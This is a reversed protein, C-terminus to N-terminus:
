RAAPTACRPPEPRRRRRPRARDDPLLLRQHRQRRAARHRADTLHTAHVASTRPGLVGHDHLLQTPTAGYAALCDDNEARQESLHVHLPRGEAAAVVQALADDPVARVSHIAAGVGRRARRRAGARAGADAWADVDGDSFRVQVGEVPPASGAASTAPTSCRSGSGPRAPRAAAPRAGMANADDYPTGDPQHHLYHFEGVATIAPRRWRATPRRALAFYSDPDLRGAVAYMQERWTWFTGRERQTRGRLARHFAHSHCNALGPHHPRPGQCIGRGAPFRASTPRQLARCRLGREEHCHSPRSGGTRSRSWCTTASPATSGRASSSTRRRATVSAALRELTDALASVGVLCDATEAHEAPAHSVGTPNRVFLMATPIGPPPWSARRRPRGPDPHGALRRGRPGRRDPPRPRRRLVALRDGVRGDRGGRHRRARGARDGAPDRHGGAGGADRRLRVARRAVRDGAVARRQHRQARGRRARLDGAARTLRAQKNAALATMAYTLM